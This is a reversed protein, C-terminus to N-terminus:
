FEYWSRKDKKLRELKKAEEISENVSLGKPVAYKAKEIGMLKSTKFLFYYGAVFLPFGTLMSTLKYEYGFFLRVGVLALAFCTLWLLIYIYIKYTYSM